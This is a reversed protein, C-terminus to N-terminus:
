IGDSADWKNILVTNGTGGQVIPAKGMCNNSTILNYNNNTGSLAITYQDTNYNGPTGTGRICTNGTITNDSSSRLRIGSHENNNCTNGTVTNNNSSSSLFIGSSNNNNCTNGTVTNNSSSDLRIGIYSNNCNNSTITDNSSSSLRIAYENNNCINGTVTNNNSFSSLYIGHYSNNCTNSTVTNNNSSVLHIGYNYNSTYTTNDGDIQLNEVRCGEVSALNIVGENFSSNWMRKLITANGNGKISVNNKNVSIPGTINYTGDLIIVEGGSAPLASIANNIEVQDDVGDCLYDVDNEAWGATSTGIVFRAVKKGGSAQAHLTGDSDIALNQGVKVHGLQTSTAIEAKHAALEQSVEGVEQDTYAKARAEAADAKTQAGAPTEAGIDSPLIPDTGTPRHTEAHLPPLDSQIIAEQLMMDARKDRARAIRRIKYSM